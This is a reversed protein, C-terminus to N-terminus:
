SNPIDNTKDLEKLQKETIDAWTVTINYERSSADFTIFTRLKGFVAICYDYIILSAGCLEGYYVDGCTPHSRGVAWFRGYARCVNVCWDGNESAKRCIEPIKSIIEAAEKQNLLNLKQSKLAADATATYIGGHKIAQANLTSLMLHAPDLKEAM